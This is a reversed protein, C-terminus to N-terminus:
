KKALLAAATKKAMADLGASKLSPDGAGVLVVRNAYAGARVRTTWKKDPGFLTLANSATVLKNTSAPLRGTDGSKRWVVTNSASDVVAGTFLTGFRATTARSTLASRMRLDAPTFAYGATALSTAAAPASPMAPAEAGAQSLQASGILLAGAVAAGLLSRVAPITHPMRKPGRTTTEQCPRLGQEAQSSPLGGRRSTGPSGRM